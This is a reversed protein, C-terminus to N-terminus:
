SKSAIYAVLSSYYSALTNYTCCGASGDTVYIYGIYNKSYISDVITKMQSSTVSHAIASFHYENSCSAYSPVASSAVKSGADEFSVIM